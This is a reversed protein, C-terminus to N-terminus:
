AAELDRQANVVDSRSVPDDYTDPDGPDSFLLEKVSNIEAALIHSAATRAKNLDTENEPEGPNLESM